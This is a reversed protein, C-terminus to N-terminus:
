KMIVDKEDAHSLALTHLACGLMSISKLDKQEM